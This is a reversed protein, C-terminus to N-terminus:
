QPELPPRGVRCADPWNLDPHCAVFREANRWMANNLSSAETKTIMPTRCRRDNTLFAGITRSLPVYTAGDPEGLVVPRDSTVLEAGTTCRAISLTKAALLHLTKNYVSIMLSIVTKRHQRVLESQEIVAQGMEGPNPPRGYDREFAARALPDAEWRTAAIATDDRWMAADLRDTDYSRCYLMAIFARVGECVQCYKPGTVLASEPPSQTLTAKKPRPM